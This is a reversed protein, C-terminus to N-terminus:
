PCAGGRCIPLGAGEEGSEWAPRRREWGRACEGDREATEPSEQPEDGAHCVQLDGGALTSSPTLSAVEKCKVRWCVQGRLETM